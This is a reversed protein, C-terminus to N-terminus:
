NRALQSKKPDKERKKTENNETKPEVTIQEEESM